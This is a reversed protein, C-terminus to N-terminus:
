SGSAAQPPPVFILCANHGGFGFSNSLVAGASMARPRDVVVDLELSPDPHRCNATPPISGRSITLCAAAAEVAGGASGLHGITGKISTVPPAEKGFVRHLAAAEAADNLPTATGHANVHSIAQAPLMADELAAVICESAISGNPAPMVLHYADTTAGYGRLVAHVTASRARADDLRELALFAAGEGLVFGDRDCDFPRSAAAPDDNRASLAGLKSFGQIVLRSIPSEAAGALVFDASGQRLLWMGEGIANAGSACATAITKTPGHLDLAQAICSATANPLPFPQREGQSTDVELANLDVSGGASSAGLIIAGRSPDSSQWRADTFARQSAWLAFDTQLDTVVGDMLRILPPDAPLDVQCAFRVPLDHTAFRGIPKAVSLGQQLCSWFTEIDSGAPTAIGIGTVAVDFSRVTMPGSDM